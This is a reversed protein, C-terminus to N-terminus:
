FPHDVNLVTGAVFQLEVSLSLLLPESPKIQVILIKDLSKLISNKAKFFPNAIV